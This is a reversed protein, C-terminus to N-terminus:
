VCRGAIFIDGHQLQVIRGDAKILVLPVAYRYVPAFGSQRIVQDYSELKEFSHGYLYEEGNYYINLLYAIDDKRGASTYFEDGPFDIKTNGAWVRGPLLKVHIENERGESPPEITAAFPGDYAAVDGGGVSLGPLLKQEHHVRTDDGSYPITRQMSMGNYIFDDVGKSYGILDIERAM